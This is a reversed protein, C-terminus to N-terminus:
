EAARPRQVPMTWAALWTEAGAVAKWEEKLAREMSPMHGAGYFIAVRQKAPDALVEKLKKLAVANRGEIIANNKELLDGGLLAENEALLKAFVLKIRQMTKESYFLMMLDMLGIENAEKFKEQMAPDGSMQMSRLLLKM